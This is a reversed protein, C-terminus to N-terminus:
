KLGLFQKLAKEVLQADDEGASNRVIQIIQKLWKKSKLPKNKQM